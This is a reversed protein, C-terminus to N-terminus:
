VTSERAAKGLWGKDPIIPPMVKYSNDRDVLVYHFTKLGLVTDGLGMSLDNLYRIDNKGTLRFIFKYDALEILDTHIQTPRRCVYGVGMKDHRNEDNLAAIVPHLLKPKPPCFRNTEDIIFLSFMPDKTRDKPRIQEIVSVLELVSYSNQPQYASYPVSEPAEHLTDYYLATRRYARLLNDVLTSKGSGKLGLVTFSRGRLDVSIKGM